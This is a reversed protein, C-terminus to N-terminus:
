IVDKYISGNIIHYITVHSVGYKEALHRQSANSVRIERVQQSTLLRRVRGPSKQWLGKIETRTPTNTSVIKETKFIVM